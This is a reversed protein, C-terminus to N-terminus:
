ARKRRTPPSVHSTQRKARDAQQRNSRPQRNVLREVSPDPHLRTPKHRCPCSGILCAARCPLELAPQAAAPQVPQTQDAAAQVAPNQQRLGNGQATGIALAFLWFCVVGACLLALNKREM